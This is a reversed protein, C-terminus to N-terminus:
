CKRAGKKHYKKLAKEAIENLPAPGRLAILELADILVQARKRKGYKILTCESRTFWVRQAAERGKFYIRILETNIGDHILIEHRDCVGTGSPTRFTRGIHKLQIM